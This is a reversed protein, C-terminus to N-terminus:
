KDPTIKSKDVLLIEFTNDDGSRDMATIGIEVVPKKYWQIKLVTVNCTDARITMFKNDQELVESLVENMEPM